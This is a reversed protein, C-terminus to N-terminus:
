EVLAAHTRLSKPTASSSPFANFTFSTSGGLTLRACIAYGVKGAFSSNGSLALTASPVYLSGDLSLTGNGGLTVTATAPTSRSQFILIGAYTGSTPASLTISGGGGLNLTSNADAFITVGSGSLNANSSVSVQANKLYYLGPQLTVSGSISVSGTFTCNGPVTSSSALSCALAPASPEPLSALPDSLPPCGTQPTPLWGNGTYGGVVCTAGTTITSSGKSQAATSSTSNVQLSCNMTVQGNGTISLAGSASADLITACAGGYKVAVATATVDVASVGVFGGFFTLVPNSGARTRHTSVQVANDSATGATFVKAVPDWTGAQVDQSTSLTGYGSPTNASVLSLATSTVNSSNPLSLVAGLAAADAAMQLSSKSVYVNALDVFAAVAMLCPFVAAAILAVSGRKDRLLATVIDTGAEDHM